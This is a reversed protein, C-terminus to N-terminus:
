ASCFARKGPSVASADEAGDLALAAEAWRRGEALYGRAAWFRWMALVLRAGTDADRERAAWRLAARLNGHEREWREMWVAEGSGFQDGREADALSLYYAVHRRRMEESEGSSVLLELAYERITELMAFRPEGDGCAEPLSVLLSNDVLSSLGELVGGARGYRPRM